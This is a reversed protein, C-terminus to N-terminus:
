GEWKQMNAALQKMYTMARMLTADQSRDYWGIIAETVPVDPDNTYPHYLFTDGETPRIRISAKKGDASQIVAISNPDVVEWLLLYEAGGYLKGSVDHYKEKIVWTLRNNNSEVDFSYSKKAQSEGRQETQTFDLESRMTNRVLNRLMEPSDTSVPVLSKDTPVPVVSPAAATTASPESNQCGFLLICCFVPVFYKM